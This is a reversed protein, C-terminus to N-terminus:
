ASVLDPQGTDAERRGASPQTPAADQGRRVILLSAPCSRALREHQRSFLTPRLGWEASAGIIVLDYGQQAEAVAAEVADEHEVVKLRAPAGDVPAPRPGEAGPRAVHLVTIEAEGHAAARQALELAARDHPGDAYPVLVRRWPRWVRPLYVAVDTRVDRMVEYVTGSLISESLVPQHWGMLVLDAAKAHAVATIDEGVDRSAFALPRVTVGAEKAAELLPQLADEEAPPTPRTQGFLEQEHARTLHLAYIRSRSPPALATAARLLEPGSSPLSVPIVVTFEDEEAAEGVAERRILRSPYIWELVPTTMFTTAIAMLVMMVFIAPSIVGLDLGISLIVLEMLGRTNMLIGLAGAERWGLGTMRAAVASGGFKGAVAVLLVLLGDLWLAAEDLLGIQTRLGTYAFFLPLLFVVTLSELKETLERVLGRDKPMIAGFLFAGFLAHIGLWETTWASTLLMLMVVAFVDHTLRGRTAAFAELRRLAPRVLFLMALVFVVSGGLTLLVGATGSARVIAIVVALLCWATVDDVAACAITVAGVKTRLLNRETLIRALVPFATVSMAAGMFLAFGPFRVSADSFQPYLYLALLAGLLFPAIISAHSTVLATEGRGRLLRPDLELGVLFMFLVLGVQSLANLYGLSEVPFLAASAGPALWGLLSPGLAIGAVMEGVVQPQNIRRFAWGMVRAAALVVAIQLLLTLLLDM